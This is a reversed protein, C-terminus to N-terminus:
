VSHGSPAEVSAGPLIPVRSRLLSFRHHYAQQLEIASRSTQPGLNERFTSYHYYFSNASTEARAVLYPTSPPAIM